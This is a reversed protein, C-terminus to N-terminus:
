KAGAHNLKGRCRPYTSCGWFPTFNGERWIMTSECKPCRHERSKLLDDLQGASFREQGRRALERGDVLTIRHKLAFEASPNTWGKLTYIAGRNVQFATMSGLMERVVREQIIWTRWHKCQILMRVGDRTAILDVGGDPHAGGKREVAYGESRLLAGCFKEFRYWDIEGLAAEVSSQTWAAPASVHPEIGSFEASRVTTASGPSQWGSQGVNTSASQSRSWRRWVIWALFCVFGVGLAIMVLTLLASFTKAFGTVGGVALEILLLGGLGLRFLAEATDLDRNRRRRAM